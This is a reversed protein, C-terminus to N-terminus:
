AVLVCHALQAAQRRGSEVDTSGKQLRELAPVIVRMGYNQKM